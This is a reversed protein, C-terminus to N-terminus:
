KSTELRVEFISPWYKGTVFLRDGKADYAIGNLVDIKGSGGVNQYLIRLDIWGLVQGTRPSIRVIYGMGWVNAYIEGKIYELENINSVIRGRDRVEIQKVVKFTRPNLFRLIATGDSMILNKDDYTIGWGETPYSFTGLLRFSQLDYIFGTHSQWTLQILVNRYITIGEGFYETPLQHSKLVRGTKLEVKRITSHGQLGTGEYFFGRHYVLGQTYAEPDHPYVNIVRISHLTTGTTDISALNLGADLSSANGLTISLPSEGSVFSFISATLSLVVIIASIRKRIDM